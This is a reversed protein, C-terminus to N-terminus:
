PHANGAKHFAVTARIVTKKVGCGMDGLVASGAAVFFALLLTYEVTTLAEEDRWFRVVKRVVEGGLRPRNRM